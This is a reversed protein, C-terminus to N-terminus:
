QFRYGIRLALQDPVYSSSYHEYKLGIDVADNIRLGVSPSLVFLAGGHTPLAAGAEGGVYFRNIAYVRLGAKLPIATRATHGITIGMASVGAAEIDYIQYPHFYYTIGGTLSAELRNAVHRYVSIEGGLVM